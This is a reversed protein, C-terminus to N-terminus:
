EFTYNWYDERGKTLRLCRLQGSKQKNILQEIRRENKSEELKFEKKVFSDSYYDYGKFSLIEYRKRWFLFGDYKIRISIGKESILYSDVKVGSFRCKIEITPNKEHRKAQLWSASSYQQMFGDMIEINGLHRQIFKCDELLSKLLGQYQKWLNDAAISHPKEIEYLIKFGESLDQKVVESRYCIVVAVRNRINFCSNNCKYRRGGCGDCDERCRDMDCGSYDWGDCDGCESQMDREDLCVWKHLILKRLEAIDIPEQYDIAYTSKGLKIFYDNWSKHVSNKDIGFSTWEKTLSYFNVVNTSTSKIVFPHGPVFWEKYNLDVENIVKKNYRVETIKALHKRPYYAYLNYKADRFIFVGNGKLATVFSTDVDSDIESFSKDLLEALLKAEEKKFKEEDMRQNEENYFGLLRIKFNFDM